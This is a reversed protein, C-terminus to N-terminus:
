RHRLDIFVIHEEEDVASRHSKLWVGWTTGVMDRSQARAWEVVIVRGDPRTM